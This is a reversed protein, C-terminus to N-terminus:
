KFFGLFEQRLHDQTLYFNVKKNTNNNIVSISLNKNINFRCNSKLILFKFKEIFKQVEPDLRNFNQINM